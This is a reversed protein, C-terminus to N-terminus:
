AFGCMRCAHGTNKTKSVIVIGNKDAIESETYTPYTGYIWTNKVIAAKIEIEGSFDIPTVEYRIQASHVREM